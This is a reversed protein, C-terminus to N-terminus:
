KRPQGKLVPTPRIRPKVPIFNSNAHIIDNKHQKKQLEIKKRRQLIKNFIDRYDIVNASITQINSHKLTVIRRLGRVVFYDEETLKAVIVETPFIINENNLNPNNQIWRWVKRFRKNVFERKPRFSDDILHAKIVTGKIKNLNINEKTLPTKENYQIRINYPPQIGQGSEVVPIIPPVTKKGLLSEKEVKTFSHIGKASQVEDFDSKITKM